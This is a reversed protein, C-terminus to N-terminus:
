KNFYIQFGFNFGVISTNTNPLSSNNDYDNQSKQYYLLGEVGISSNLFYTVGVGLRFMNLKSNITQDSYTGTTPSYMQGKTSQQGFTYQAEPFVAVKNFPFYYRIVPGVSYSNYKTDVGSITSKGVTYPLSLGISLQKAFFYSVNPNFSFTSSKNDPQSFAPTSYSYSSTSSTFGMTGGLRFTGKEIQAYGASFLMVFCSALAISKTKM